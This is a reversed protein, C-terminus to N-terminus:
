RLSRAATGSSRWRSAQEKRRGCSLQATAAVAPWGGMRCPRWRLSRAATGSSRWRSARVRRRGSSLQATTTPVPWGGDSLVALAIVQGGHPLVKDPKDAFSKLDKAWLKITGDQVGSALRGDALVALSTVAGVGPHHWLVMPEGAAGTAWIKINGLDFDGGSALRGDALVALASVEKGSSGGYWHDTHFLVLPEGNRVTAQDMRLLTINGDFGGAALRGDKLVALSMVSNSSSIIEPEGTGNKPWIKIEGDQGATALRGDEV